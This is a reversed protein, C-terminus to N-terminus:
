KVYTYQSNKNTLETNLTQRYSLGCDTNQVFCDEREKEQYRIDYCAWCWARYGLLLTEGKDLKKIIEAKASLM